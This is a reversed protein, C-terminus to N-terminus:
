MTSLINRVGSCKCVGFVVELDYVGSAELFAPVHILASYHQSGKHQVELNHPYHDVRFGIFGFGM